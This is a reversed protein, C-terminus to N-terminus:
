FDHDESMRKAVFYELFARFRFVVRDDNEKYSLVRSNLLGDILERSNFALGFDHLYRATFESLSDMSFFYANERCMHEAVVGLFHVQNTFDFKRRQAQQLSRKQLLTEIFREILNPRNIPTYTPDSTVIDILLSSNIPTQPVNIARLESIVRELLKEEGINPDDWKRVLTRLNKRSFPDLVVSHFYQAM